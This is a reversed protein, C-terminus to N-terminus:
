GGRRVRDYYDPDDVTIRLAFRIRGSPTTGGYDVIEFHYGRPDDRFSDSLARLYADPDKATRRDVWTKM